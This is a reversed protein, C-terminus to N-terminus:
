KKKDNPKEQTKEWYAKIEAIIKQRQEPALESFYHAGGKPEYPGFFEKSFLKELIELAADQYRQITRTYIHKVNGVTRTPRRDNLLGILIPIAPEGIKYLEWAANRIDRGLWQSSLFFTHGPTSPEWLNVDRLKYVRYSIQENISLKSIDEPEKWNKDEEVMKKLLSVLEQADPTWRSMPYKQAFEAFREAAKARNGEQYLFRIASSFVTNIESNKRKEKEQYSIDTPKEKNDSSCDLLNIFIFVMLILIIYWLNKKM